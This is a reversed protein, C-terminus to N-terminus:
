LYAKPDIAPANAVRLHNSNWSLNLNRLHITLTVHMIMSLLLSICTTTRGTRVCSLGEPLRDCYRILLCM